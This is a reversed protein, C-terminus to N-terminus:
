FCVLSQASFYEVGQQQGSEQSFAKAAIAPVRRTEISGQAFFVGGKVNPNLM